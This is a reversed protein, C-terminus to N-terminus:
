SGKMGRRDIHIFLRLFNEGEIVVKYIMKNGVFVRGEFWGLLEWEEMMKGDAWTNYNQKGMLVDM